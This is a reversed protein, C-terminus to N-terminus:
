SLEKPIICLEYNIFTKDKKSHLEDLLKYDIEDPSYKIMWSDPRNAFEEKYIDFGLENATLDPGDEYYLHKKYMHMSQAKDFLEHTVFYGLRCLDIAEMLGFRDDKTIISNALYGRNIANWHDIVQKISPYSQYYDDTSVEM